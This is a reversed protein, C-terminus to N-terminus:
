AVAKRQQQRVRLTVGAIALLRYIGPAYNIGLEAGIERLKRGEAYLQAAREARKITDPAHGGMRRSPRMEQGSRLVLKRLRGGPMNHREAVECLSDGKVYEAVAAQEDSSLPRQGAIGSRALIQRVRERTLQETAGIEALTKGAERMAKIRESKEDDRRRTSAKQCEGSKRRAVGRRILAARVTGMSLGLESSIVSISEGGLYAQAIKDDRESKASRPHRDSQAALMMSKGDLLGRSRAAIVSQPDVRELETVVSALTSWLFEKSIAM